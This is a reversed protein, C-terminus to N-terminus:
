QRLRTKDTGRRDLHRAAGASINFLPQGEHRDPRGKEFAPLMDSALGMTLWATRTLVYTAFGTRPSV